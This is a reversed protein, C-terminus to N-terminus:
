CDAVPGVPGTYIYRIGPEMDHGRRVRCHIFKLNLQLRFHFGGCDVSSVLKQNGHSPPLIEVVAVKPRSKVQSRHPYTCCGTACPHSVVNLTESDDDVEKAGPLITSYISGVTFSYKRILYIHNHACSSVLINM